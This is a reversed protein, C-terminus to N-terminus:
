ALERSQPWTVPVMLLPLSYEYSPHKRTINMLHTYGSQECRKESGQASMLTTESAARGRASKRSKTHSHSPARTLTPSIHDM